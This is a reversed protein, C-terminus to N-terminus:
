KMDRLLLAMLGTDFYEKGGWADIHIVDCIITRTYQDTSAAV